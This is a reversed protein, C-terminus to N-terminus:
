KSQMWAPTLAPRLVVGDATKYQIIVANGFDGGFDQAYVVTGTGEARVPAGFLTNGSGAAATSVEGTRIIGPYEPDEVGFRGFGFNYSDKLGDLSFQFM